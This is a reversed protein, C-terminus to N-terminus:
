PMVGRADVALCGNKNCIVPNLEFEELGGEDETIRSVKSIIEALKEIDIKDRGRAGELLPFGKLEALMSIADQMTIPCIRITFDKLIEAFIGGIGALVIPGFVPDIKTGIIVEIGEIQEQIIAKEFGPVKELEGFARSAEENTTIGLRIAKFESKHVALGSVAKMANKPYLRMKEIDGSSNIASYGAVPIGHKEAMRFSEELNLARM